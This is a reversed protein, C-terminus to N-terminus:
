MVNGRSDSAAEQGESALEIVTRAVAGDWKETKGVSWRVHACANAGLGSQQIDGPLHLCM